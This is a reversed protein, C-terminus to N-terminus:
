YLTASNLNQSTIQALILFLVSNLTINTWSKQLCQFVLFPTDEPSCEVAHPLLMTQTDQKLETPNM